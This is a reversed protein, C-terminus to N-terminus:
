GHAIGAVSLAVPPLDAAFGLGGDHVLEAVQVVPKSWPMVRLGVVGVAGYPLGGPVPEGVPQLARGLVTLFFWFTSSGIRVGIPARFSRSRDAASTRCASATMAAPYEVAATLM